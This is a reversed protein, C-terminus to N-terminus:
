AHLDGEVFAFFRDSIASRTLKEGRNLRHDPNSAVASWFSEPVSICPGIAHLLGAVVLEDVARRTALAWTDQRLPTFCVFRAAKLVALLGYHLPGTWSRDEAEIQLTLNGGSDLIVTKEFICSPFRCATALVMVAAHVPDDIVNKCPPSNDGDVLQRQVPIYSGVTLARRPQVVTRPLVPRLVGCELNAQLAGSIRSHQLAIDLYAKTLPTTAEVYAQVEGAVVKCAIADRAEDVVSKIGETPQALQLWRTLLEAVNDVAQAIELLLPTAVFRGGREVALDSPPAPYRRVPVEGFQLLSELLKPLYVDLYERELLRRELARGLRKLEAASPRAHNNEWRSITTQNTGVLRALRTQTLRRQTRMQRILDGLTM